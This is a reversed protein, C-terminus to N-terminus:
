LRRPAPPEFTIDEFLPAGDRTLTLLLSQHPRFVLDVEFSRNFAHITVPLTLTDDCRSQGYAMPYRLGRTKPHAFFLTYRDDEARCWFEPLDEGGVLPAHTVIRSVDASVNPLAMLQALQRDYDLHKVRGPQKPTRILCVPLGQRALRLLDALADADLWEADVVLSHFEAQGCVLRGGEYRADKLFPASVWLPRFGRWAAPLKTEQLEYVYKSSPKQLDAPLEGQM